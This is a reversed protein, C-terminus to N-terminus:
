GTVYVRMPKQPTGRGLLTRLFDLLRTNFANSTWAKHFGWHVM